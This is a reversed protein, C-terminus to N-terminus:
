GHSKATPKKDAAAPEFEFWDFRKMSAMEADSIEVPAATREGPKLTVGPTSNLLKPGSTTNTAHYTAM